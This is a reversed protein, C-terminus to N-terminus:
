FFGGSSGTENKRDNLGPSSLGRSPRGESVQSTWSGYESTGLRGKKGGRESQPSIEEASSDLPTSSSAHERSRNASGTSSASLVQSVVHNRPQNRFRSNWRNSGSENTQRRSDISPSSVSLHANSPTVPGSDFRRALDSDRQGQERDKSSQPSVDGPTKTRRFTPRSRAQRSWVGAGQSYTNASDDPPSPIDNGEGRSLSPTSQQRRSWPTGSNRIPSPRTSEPRSPLKSAPSSRGSERPHPTPLEYLGHSGAWMEIPPTLGDAQMEHGGKTGEMEARLQHGGRTGEMEARTTVDGRSGEMEARLKVNNFHVGKSGEMETMHRGDAEVGPKGEAYLEGLPPKGVGDMEPKAAPDFEAEARRKEEEERRRQKRRRFFLLAMGVLAFVAAVGITIGAIGGSSPSSSNKTSNQTINSEASNAAIAVIQQPTNQFQSQSISFNRREYDVIM